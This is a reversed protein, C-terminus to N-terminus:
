ATIRNVWGTVSILNSMSAFARIIVSNNYVFGPLVLFLGSKFPVSFKVLDDPVTVGGLELTLELNATHNNTAYLWVEDQDLTGSVATHLINGPTLNAAIRIQRGNTSGSLKLKSYQAM